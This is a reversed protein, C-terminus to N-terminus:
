HLTLAIAIPMTIFTLLWTTVMGMGGLWGFQSFGRFTSAALGGYAASATVAAALTGPLAQRAADFISRRRSDGPNRSRYYALFLLPYNIGNGAIISGLFATNSNLHGVLLHGVAFTFLLGPVVGALVV